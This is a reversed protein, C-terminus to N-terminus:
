RRRHRGDDAGDRLLGAPARRGSLADRSRHQHVHQGSSSGTAARSTPGSFSPRPSSRSSSGTHRTPSGNDHWFKVDLALIRGEDDFGVEVQQFQGREHAVRSSTSVATRPGSSTMSSCGHRGRSSSRRRGPTCSRSASAAASIRRSASWRPWSAPRATAAVAARVGTSTQTSSWMRLMARRPTGARMSVRAKWRCVPAASSPSLDLHAPAARLGARGDVDGVEQILHAAVNGPPRRTSWTLLRVPAKSVSSRGPKATRLDVVQIRPRGRGRRRVPRRAVVMVVPRVSM